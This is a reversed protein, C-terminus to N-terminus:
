IMKGACVSKGCPDGTLLSPNHTISYFNHMLYKLPTLYAALKLIEWTAAQNVILPSPISYSIYM